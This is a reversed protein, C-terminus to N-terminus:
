RAPPRRMAARLQDFRDTGWFLEGRFLIQPSGFIGAALAANVKEQYRAKVGPDDLAVRLAARDEGVAAGIDAVVDAQGILRGAAWYAPFAALAFRKAREPDRDEIWSFARGPAILNEPWSPPFRFPVGFHRATRPIDHAFYNQKPKHQLPNTAEFQKYAATVLFAHWRTAVGFEAALPEITQSAIYGYPSTFDFYFDLTETM